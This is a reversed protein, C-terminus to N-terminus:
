ALAQPAPTLRGVADATKEPSNAAQRNGQISFDIFYFLIEKRYPRKQQM